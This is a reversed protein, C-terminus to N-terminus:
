RSFGHFEVGIFGGEEIEGGVAAGVFVGAGPIVRPLHLEEEQDDADEEGTAADDHDHPEIEIRGGVELGGFAV